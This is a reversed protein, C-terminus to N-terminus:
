FFNKCYKEKPQIWNKAVSWEATFTVDLLGRSNASEFLAVFTAKCQLQMSHICKELKEEACLFALTKIRGFNEM